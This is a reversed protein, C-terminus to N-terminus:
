AASSDSSSEGADEADGNDSESPAKHIKEIAGQENLISFFDVSNLVMGAIHAFLQSLQIDDISFKKDKDDIRSSVVGFIKGQKWIPAVLISNFNITKVIEKLKALEPNYSINEIAVPKETNLAHLVEPYKNLDINIKKVRIDDSSAFVQGAMAEHDCRIISCRVAKLTLALMQMLNFLKERPDRLATGERLVLEILRLFKEEGPMTQSLSKSEEKLQVKQLHFIVRQLLDEAKYPKVIYDSAGNKFVQKINNISNHKSTVLVRINSGKLVDHSKIMQLLDMATFEPMLLDIVIFDPIWNNLLAQVQAGVTATECQFGNEGLYEAVRRVVVGDREAILIKIPQSM